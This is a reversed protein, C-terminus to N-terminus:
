RQLGRDTRNRALRARRQEGGCVTREDTFDGTDRVGGFLSDRDAVSHGNPHRAGGDHDSWLLGRAGDGGRGRGGVGDSSPEDDIEGERAPSPVGRFRGVQGCPRLRAARAQPARYPRAICPSARSASCSLAIAASERGSTSRQGSSSVSMSALIRGCCPLVCAQGVHPRQHGQARCSTRSVDREGHERSRAPRLSGSRCNSCRLSRERAEDPLCPLSPPKFLAGFSRISQTWLLEEDRASIDNKAAHLLAGGRQTLRVLRRRRDVRDFSRVGLGRYSLADLHGILRTPDHGTRRALDSQSVRLEGGPRVDRTYEWMTLGHKRLM